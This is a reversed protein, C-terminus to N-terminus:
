VDITKRTGMRVGSKIVKKAVVGKPVIGMALLNRIESLRPELSVCNPNARYLLHIDSVTIEWDERVAQGKVTQPAEPAPIFSLAQQANKAANEQAAKAEADIRDAEAKAREQAAQLEAANRAKAAEEMAVRRAADAAARQEREIREQEERAEREIRAAEEAAKRAAVRAVEALEQQYSGVEGAIRTQESKLEKVANEAADDIERGLKIVPAKLEKRESEIWKILATLEAQAAVATANEEANTVIEIQSSAVLASMKAVAFEQALTIAAGQKVLALM